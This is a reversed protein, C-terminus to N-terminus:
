GLSKEWEEHFESFREMMEEADLGLEKTKNKIYETCTLENKLLYREADKTEPTRIEVVEHIKKSDGISEIMYKKIIEIKEYVSGIDFVTGNKECIWNVTKEDDKTKLLKQIVEFPLLVMSSASPELVDVEDERIM